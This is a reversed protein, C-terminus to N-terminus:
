FKTLTDRFYRRNAKTRSMTRGAGHSASNISAAIIAKGEKFGINKLDNGTLAM